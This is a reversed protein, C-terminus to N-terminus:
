DLDPTVLVPLRVLRVQHLLLHVDLVEPHLLVDASANCGDQNLSGSSLVHDYNHGSGVGPQALLIRLSCHVVNFPRGVVSGRQNM